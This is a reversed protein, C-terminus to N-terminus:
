MIEDTMNETQKNVELIRSKGYIFKKIILMILQITIRMKAGTEAAFLGKDFSCISFFLVLLMTIAENSAANAKPIKINFTDLLM